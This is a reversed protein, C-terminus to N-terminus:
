RAPLGREARSDPTQLIFERMRRYADYAEELESKKIAEGNKAQILASTLALAVQEDKTLEKM